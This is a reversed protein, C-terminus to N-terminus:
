PHAGDVIIQKGRKLTFDIINRAKADVKVAKRKAPKFGLVTAFVDYTGPALCAVYEGKPDTKVEVIQKTAKNVLRITVDVIVWGEVTTARGVVGNCDKKADAPSAVCLLAVVFCASWFRFFTKIM